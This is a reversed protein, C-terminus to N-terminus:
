TELNLGLDIMRLDEILSPDSINAPEAALTAVKIARQELPLGNRLATTVFHVCQSNYGLNSYAVAVRENFGSDYLLRNSGDIDGIISHLTEAWAAATRPVRPIGVKDDPIFGEDFDAAKSVISHVAEVRFELGLARRSDIEELALQLEDLHSTKPDNWWLLLRAHKFGLIRKLQWYRSEMWETSSKGSFAAVDNIISRLSLLLNEKKAFVLSQMMLIALDDSLSGCALARHYVEEVEKERGRRLLSEAVVAYVSPSFIMERHQHIIDLSKEHINLADSSGVAALMSLRWSMLEDDDMSLIESILEGAEDHRDITALAIISQSLSADSRIRGDRDKSVLVDEVASKMLLGTDAQNASNCAQMLKSLVSFLLYKEDDDLTLSKVKILHLAASLRYMHKQASEWSTKIDVSEEIDEVDFSDLDLPLLSQAKNYSSRELSAIYAGHLDRAKDAWGLGSLSCITAACVDDRHQMQAQIPMSTKEFNLHPNLSSDIDVSIEDNKGTSFQLDVLRRCLMAVGFRSAKNCTRMVSGLISHIERYWGDSIKEETYESSEDWGWRSTELCNGQIAWNKTKCHDLVTFLVASSAEWDSDCECAGLVGRLAEFSISAEDEQTQRFMELALSSMGETRITARMALDRCLPALPDRGGGWQWEDALGPQLGIKEDFLDIAVVSEGSLLCAHMVSAM